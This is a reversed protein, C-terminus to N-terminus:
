ITHVDAMVFPEMQLYLATANRKQSRVEYEDHLESAGFNTFIGFEKGRSLAGQSARRATGLSLDDVSICSFWPFVIVIPTM